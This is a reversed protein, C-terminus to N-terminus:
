QFYQVYKENDNEWSINGRASNKELWDTANKPLNHGNLRCVLLYKDNPSSRGMVRLNPLIEDVQQLTMDRFNPGEVAVDGEFEVSM